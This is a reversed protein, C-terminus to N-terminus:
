FKSIWVSSGKNLISVYIEQDDALKRRRIKHNVVNGMGRRFQSSEQTHLFAGYLEVTDSLQQHRSIAQQGTNNLVIMCAIM